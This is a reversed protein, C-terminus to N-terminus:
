TGEEQSRTWPQTETVQRHGRNSDRTLATVTATITITVTTFQNDLERHEQSLRAEDAFWGM